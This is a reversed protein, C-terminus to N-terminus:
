CCCWGGGGEWWVSGGEKAPLFAPEKWNHPPAVAMHARLQSVPSVGLVASLHLHLFFFFGLTGPFFM